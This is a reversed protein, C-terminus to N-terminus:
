EEIMPPPSVGAHVQVFSRHLIHSIRFCFFDETKDYVGFRYLPGHGHYRASIKNEDLVDKRTTEL